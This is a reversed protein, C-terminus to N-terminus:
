YGDVTTTHTTEIPYNFPFNSHEYIMELMQPHIALPGVVQILVRVLPVNAYEPAAFFLLYPQLKLHRATDIYKNAQKHAAPVSIPQENRTHRNRFSACICQKLSRTCM